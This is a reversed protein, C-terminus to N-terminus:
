HNCKKKCKRDLEKECNHRLIISMSQSFVLVMTLDFFFWIWIQEVKTLMALEALIFLVCVGAQMLLFDRRKESLWSKETM